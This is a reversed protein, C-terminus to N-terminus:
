PLQQPAFHLDTAANEELNERRMKSLTLIVQEGSTERSELRATSLFKYLHNNHMHGLIRTGLFNTTKGGGERGVRERGGGGVGWGGRQRDCTRKVAYFLKQILASNACLLLAVGAVSAFSVSLPVLPSRSVRM